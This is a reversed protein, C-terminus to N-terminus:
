IQTQRVTKQFCTMSKEEEERIKENQIKEEM